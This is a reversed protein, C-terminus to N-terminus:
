RRSWRWFLAGLVCMGVIVAFLFLNQQAPTPNCTMTTNDCGYDCQTILPLDEGNIVYVEWTNNGTCNTVKTINDAYIPYATILFVVLIMAAKYKKSALMRGTESLWFTSKKGM